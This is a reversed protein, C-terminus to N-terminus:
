MHTWLSITPYTRIVAVPGIPACSQSAMWLHFRLYGPQQFLLLASTTCTSQLEGFIVRDLDIVDNGFTLTPFLRSVVQLQQVSMTVCTFRGVFPTATTHIVFVV